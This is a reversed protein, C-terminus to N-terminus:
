IVRGFCSAGTAQAVEDWQTLWLSSFHKAMRGSMSFEKGNAVSDVWITRSRFITRALAVGILGPLAGTSIVVDPRYRILIWFIRVANSVLKRLDNRNCEHVISYNKIGARPPLGPLTTVYKVEADALAPRILMLQEWHGGGSAIALIKVKAHEM